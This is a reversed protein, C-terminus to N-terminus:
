KDSLACVTPGLSCPRWYKYQKVNFDHKSNVM